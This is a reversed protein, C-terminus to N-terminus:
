GMAITGGGPGEPVTENLRRTLTEIREASANLAAVVAAQTAKARDASAVSADHLTAFEPELRALKGLAETLEDALTLAAMVTLRTDGIEGFSARLKGIRQDLTEALKILHAEQGDDCAMRFERGNITVNVQAM